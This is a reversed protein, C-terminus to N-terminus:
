EILEADYRKFRETKGEAARRGCVQVRHNRECQDDEHEDLDYREALFLAEPVEAVDELREGRQRRNVDQVLNRGIM